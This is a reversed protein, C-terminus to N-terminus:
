LRRNKEERHARFEKLFDSATIIGVLHDDGAVVPLAEVNWRLMLDAANELTADPLISIPNYATADAVPMARFKEMAQEDADAGPSPHMLRLDRDSFMGLLHNAEDVVPLHRFRGKRMKELASQISARPTVTIPYRTMRERVHKTAAGYGLPSEHSAGSLDEYEKQLSRYEVLVVGTDNLLSRVEDTAGHNEVWFVRAAKKITDQATQLMDANGDPYFQVIDIPEPIDTVRGYRVLGLISECNAIVPTITLGYEILKRTRAYSQYIPDPRIGVVAIRQAARLCELEQRRAPYSNVEDRLMETSRESGHRTDFIM